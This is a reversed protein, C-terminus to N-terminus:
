FLARTEGGSESFLADRAGGNKILYQYHNKFRAITGKAGVAWGQNGAFSPANLNLPDTHKWHKGQDNSIDTGNPGVAAFDGYSFSGVASRYGGPQQEALRWTEGSDESYIAM